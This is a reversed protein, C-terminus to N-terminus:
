KSDKWFSFRKERSYFELFYHDLKKIKLLSYKPISVTEQRRNSPIMALISMSQFKIFNPWTIWRKFAIGVFVILFMNMTIQEGHDFQKFDEEYGLLLM